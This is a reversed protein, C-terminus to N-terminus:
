LGDAGLMGGQDGEEGDGGAQTKAEELGLEGELNLHRKVLM